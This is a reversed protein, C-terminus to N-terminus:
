KQPSPEEIHPSQQGCPKRYIGFGELYGEVGGADGVGVEQLEEVAHVVGRGLVALTHVGARLVAAGDEVVRGLLFGLRHLDRLRRLFLPKLVPLDRRLNQLRAPPPIRLIIMLQIQM